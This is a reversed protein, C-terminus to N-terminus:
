DMFEIDDKKAIVALVAVLLLTYELILGWRLGYFRLIIGCVEIIGGLIVCIMRGKKKIESTLVKNKNEVPCVTVFVVEIFLLIWIDFVITISSSTLEYMGILIIFLVCFWFNCKFYTAAHYGGSFQRIPIFVGLFVLSEVTHKSIIGIVIILIVNLLSSVSIEIGYNYYARTTDDDNIVNKAVLYDTLKKSIREIM